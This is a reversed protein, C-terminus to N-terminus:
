SRWNNLKASPPQPFIVSLPSSYRLNDEMILRDVVVSIFQGNTPKGRELNMTYQCVSRILDFNGRKCALQIANRIAREVKSPTTDFSEAIVPYLKKTLAGLLQTDKYSAIIAERLYHYGKVHAPVGMEHMMNTIDTDLDRTKNIKPQVFPKREGGGGGCLEHIREVLLEFDCPKLIFYDAGLELARRTVSEQGFVTLMIVKPKENFGALHELVGIGDLQPMIIDLILIDPNHEHILGIAQLGNNAIGVVELQDHGGIFSNLQECFDKNDDVILVKIEKNELM